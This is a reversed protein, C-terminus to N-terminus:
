CLKTMKRNDDPFGDWCEDGAQSYEVRAETIRKANNNEASGTPYGQYNVDPNSYHLIWKSYGGCCGESCGMKMLTTHQNGVCSAGGHGPSGLCHGAEHAYLKDNPMWHGGSAVLLTRYTGDFEGDVVDGEDWMACAGMNSGLPIDMNHLLVIHDASQKLFQHSKLDKGLSNIFWRNFKYDSSEFKTDALMEAHSRPLKQVSGWRKYLIPIRSNELVTNMTKVYSDAHETANSKFDSVYWFKATVTVVEDGAPHGIRPKKSTTEGPPQHPRRCACCQRSANFGRTDFHGCDQPFEDYHDTCTDGETDRTRDDNVCSGDSPESNGGCDDMNCDQRSKGVCGAGGNAPSPDTCTRTM